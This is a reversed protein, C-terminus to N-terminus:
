NPNFKKRKKEVIIFINKFFRELISFVMCTHAALRIIKKGVIIITFTYSDIEKENKASPRIEQKVPVKGWNIIREGRFACLCLHTKM